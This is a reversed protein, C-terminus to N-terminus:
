HEDEGFDLAGQAPPPTLAGGVRAAASLDSWSTGLGNFMLATQTWRRKECISYLLYALEKATDLDVRQGAGAMLRAAEEAGSDNLAQALRVVAEWVSVREDALPDWGGSMEEPPILRARGVRARFVGGRDLGAVSTNTARSLTDATGSEAEDWGFQGFWKMCFRTDADFDGVQESLVEDLVQNILALATRVTMTSGDAEVIQRYRTFISMGPGIAAQALDVPAISGQQLRRLAAPLDQHLAQIFGRRAVVEAADGRPRCALVISSALANSDQGRMRTKMETRIPWTGTITWGASILGGLLTEWGTSATGNLDSEAQKFAYYITIPATGATALRAQRFVDQFGVEFYAAAAEKGGHRQPDAVLEMEKPTVVTRTLSPLISGLMKRPWVYFVDSLDAYPVNDYYPPDTSIVAGPHALIASGADAQEVEAQGQSGLQKLSRGMTSLCASFSGSSKGLVNAESFDWVMSITQKTFLHQSVQGTSEWGCLANSWDVLRSVALALYVAVSDAYAEADVGNSDLRQGNQWGALLADELVRERALGVLDSLTTLATLQRPTFIDAHSTMGYGPATLYRANYPLDVDPVDPPLGM